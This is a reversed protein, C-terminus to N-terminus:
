ELKIVIASVNDTSGKYLAYKVLSSAVNDALYPMKKGKIISTSYTEMMCQNEYDNVFNTAEEITLSEWLGDCALIIYEDDKLAYINTYPEQSVLPCYTDGFSRSVSLENIRWIDPFYDDQHIRNFDKKKLKLRDAEMTIRKKEIPNNPKHDYTLCYYLGNNMVVCRCDGLNIVQLYPKNKNKYIIALLATSGIGEYDKSEIKKQINNFLEILLVLSIPFITNKMIEKLLLSSAYNAVEVGGHGDCICYVNIHPKGKKSGDYNTFIFHADENDERKGTETSFYHKFKMITNFLNNHINININHM